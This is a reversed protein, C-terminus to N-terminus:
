FVLIIAFEDIIMKMMLSKAATTTRQLLDRLDILDGGRNSSSSSNNHNHDIPDGIRERERV